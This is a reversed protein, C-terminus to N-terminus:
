RRAAADGQGYGDDSNGSHRRRAIERTEDRDREQREADSQVFRDLEVDEVQLEAELAAIQAQISARRHEARRRLRDLEHRREAEATKARAEQAIRASGTLVGEPGLYADLLKIGHDTILYERIQNSHAMGRSKLVYVGRNREGGLEIDRLLIWTDVLSSVGLDTQELSETQGM